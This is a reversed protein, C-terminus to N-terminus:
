WTSPGCNEVTCLIKLWAASNITNSHFYDSLHFEPKKASM